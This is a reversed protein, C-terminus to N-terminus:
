PIAAPRVQAATTTRYNSSKLLEPDDKDGMTITGDRYGQVLKEFQSGPMSFNIYLPDIQVLTTLLGSEGSPSILSGVTQNEPGAIGSIPATVKTYGLNIQADQVGAQAVQVNAQATEYASLANDYDQPSVAGEALLTKM